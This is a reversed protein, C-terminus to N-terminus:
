AIRAGQRTGRRKFEAEVAALIAPKDLCWDPEVLYQPPADGSVRDIVCDPPLEEIFDVACSVYEAFGQLRVEGSSVMEALRTGKVAHLNHIKVFDIRLRALERATALMDERSEGPLGLIVHAGVELGRRRSEDVAQLFADYHHGRGMWDLSRHHITQLGYEISLCTRRALEALLDLVEDGVCDPRTGIALGVVEPQVIAEEYKSRLEDIPAYTNSAPQFYAIFRDADYRARLKRIGENIQQSISGLDGRRSPSFSAPNCFVCGSNGLSGDRNPCDFGGDVSIKWVRCGFRHRNFFGRSLYYLGASAWDASEPGRDSFTTSSM